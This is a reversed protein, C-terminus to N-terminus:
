PSNIRIDLVVSPEPAEGKDRHDLGGLMRSYRVLAEYLYKDDFSGTNIDKIMGM